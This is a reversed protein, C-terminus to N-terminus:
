RSKIVARRGGAPPRPILARPARDRERRLLGQHVSFFLMPDEWAYFHAGSTEWHTWGAWGFKPSRHTAPTMLPSMDLVKALLTLYEVIDVDTISRDPIGEIVLRQRHIAPALDHM